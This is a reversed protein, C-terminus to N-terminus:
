GEWLAQQHHAAAVDGAFKGGDEVAQARLDRLQVPALLYQAAKVSVHAGENGAFHGLGAYRQVQVGFHSGNFAAIIGQVHAQAVAAHNAGVRHEVGGAALWQGTAQAQVCGAHRDVVGARDLDVRM